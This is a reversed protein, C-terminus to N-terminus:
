WPNAADMEWKVIHSVTLAGGRTFLKFQRSDDRAPYVRQVLVLDNNVFIEIVSCDVFIVQDFVGNAGTYPVVQRTTHHPYQLSPDTSANAFDIVFEHAHRHYTVTTQEEGDPACPLKIGFEAAGEPALTM